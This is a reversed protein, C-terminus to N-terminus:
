GHCVRMLSDMTKDLAIELARIETKKEEIVDNYWDINGHLNQVIDELRANAAELEDFEEARDRLERQKRLQQIVRERGDNQGETFAADSAIYYLINDLYEAVLPPLDLDIKRLTTTIDSAPPNDGAQCMEDLVRLKEKTTPDTM